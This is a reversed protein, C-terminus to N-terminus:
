GLSRQMMVCTRCPPQLLKCPFLIKCGVPHVQDRGYMEFFEQCPGYLLHLQGTKDLSTWCNEGLSLTGHGPAQSEGERGLAREVGGEGALNPRTSQLVRVEIELDM